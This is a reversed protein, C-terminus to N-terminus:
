WREHRDDHREWREDHRDHRREYRYDRDYRDYHHGCYPGHRHVFGAAPFFFPPPPPFPLWLGFDRRSHWHDAFAAGPIGLAFTAGLLAACLTKSFRPFRVM